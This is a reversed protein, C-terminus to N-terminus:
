STVSTCSFQVLHVPGMTSGQFTQIEGSFLATSKSSWCGIRGTSQCFSALPNLLDQIWTFSQPYMLFFHESSNEVAGAGGQCVWSNEVMFVKGLELLCDEAHRGQRIGIPTGWYSGLGFAPTAIAPVVAPWAKRSGESRM